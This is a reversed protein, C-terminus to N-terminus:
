IPWSFRQSPRFMKNKEECAGDAFRYEGGADVAPVAGEAGHRARADGQVAVAYEDELAPPGDTESCIELHDEFVAGAGLVDEPLTGCGCETRLGVQLAGDERRRRDGDPGARRKVAPDQSLRRCGPDLFCRSRPTKGHGAWRIEDCTLRQSEM